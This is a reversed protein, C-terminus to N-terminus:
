MGTQSSSLFMCEEEEEERDTQSDTAVASIHTPRQATKVTSFYLKIARERGGRGRDREREKRGGGQREREMERGGEREGGEGGRREREKKDLAYCGTHSRTNSAPSSNM